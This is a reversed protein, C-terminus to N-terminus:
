PSVSSIVTHASACSRIKSLAQTQHMQSTTAKTTKKTLAHHSACTSTPTRRPNLRQCRFWGVALVSVTVVLRYSRVICCSVTTPSVTTSQVRRSQTHTVNHSHATSPRPQLDVRCSGLRRGGEKEGSACGGPNVKLFEIDCGFLRNIYGPKLQSRPVRKITEPRKEYGIRVMLLSKDYEQHVMAWWWSGWIGAYYCGNYLLHESAPVNLNLSTGGHRGKGVGFQRLRIARNGTSKVPM